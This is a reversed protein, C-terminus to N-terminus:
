YLLICLSDLGLKRCLVGATDKAFNAFDRIKAYQCLLSCGMAKEQPTGHKIQNIAQIVRLKRIGESNTPPLKQPMRRNLMNLLNQAFYNPLRKRYSDSNLYDNIACLYRKFKKNDIAKLYCELDNNSDFNRRDIYAEQPVYQDIDPAGLYIPVCGAQFSDFIKETVYGRVNDSNEYCLSFRYRRMTDLKSICTGQYCDFFRHPSMLPLVTKKRWGEGYMDFQQGMSAQFYKIARIREAYLSGECHLIKWSTISVLMKREEFSLWDAIHGSVPFDSYFVREKDPRTNESLLVTGFCTYIDKDFYLPAIQPPEHFVALINKAGVEELAHLIAGSFYLGFVVVKDAQEIPLRDFTGIEWGRDEALQKFVCYPNLCDDRAANRSFLGNNLFIPNSPIISIKM